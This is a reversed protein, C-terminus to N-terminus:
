NEKARQAKNQKGKTEKPKALSWCKVGRSPNFAFSTSVWTPLRTPSGTSHSRLPSGHPCGQPVAPQIRVFHLGMHVAKHSQRNFAFSTSVWTSLRTPSGTSHSRLPSGHPCGQPVAPKLSRQQTGFFLPGKLSFSPSWEMLSRSREIFPPRPDQGRALLCSTQDGTKPPHSEPPRAEFECFLDPGAAGLKGSSQSTADELGLSRRTKM